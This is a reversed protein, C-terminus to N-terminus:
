RACFRDEITGSFANLEAKELRWQSLMYKNEVFFAFSFYHAKLKTKLKPM